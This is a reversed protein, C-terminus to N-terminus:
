PAAEIFPLGTDLGTVEMVRRVAEGESGVLCFRDVSGNNLRHHASVILAIGTSDIFELRTMDLVIKGAGDNEAKSLEGALTETNALDLEGSLEITCLSDRRDTRIGLTGDQIEPKSREPM